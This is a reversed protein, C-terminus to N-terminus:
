KVYKKGDIIYVGKVAKSVRCGSLTYIGQKGQVPTQEVNKIANPNGNIEMVLGYEADPDATAAGWMVYGTNAYVDRTCDTNEEGEATVVTNDCFVVIGEDVWNYEFVGVFGNVTQPDAVINSADVTFSVETYEPTEGEAPAVYGEPEGVIFVVPKGAEISESEQENMALYNKDNKSFTGEVTYKVGDQPTIAVPYCMPYFKGEVIDKTFTPEYGDEVDGATEILWNSNSGFTNSEWSVFRQNWNQLHLCTREVGKLTRGHMLNTGGGLATVDFLTPTLSLTVNNNNVAQINIFLGTAKNQIAYASDAVAVFRFMALDDYEVNDVLWMAAGERVDGNATQDIGATIGQAEDASRYTGVTVYRGTGDGLDSGTAGSSNKGYKDYIEQMPFRFKYWKDTQVKNAADLFNKNAEVIKDVYGQLTAKDFQGKKSYETAEDIASSLATATSEDSWFGPDEGIALISAADKYTNLADRLPTPDVLANKFTEYAQQLAEYESVSIDADAINIARNLANQFDIAVQGMNEIQSTGVKNARYLQFGGMHWYGRDYCDQNPGRTGDNFFRLYQYSTTLVFADMWTEIVGSTWPDNLNSAILTWGTEGTNALASEDNSGYVSFLVPNDNSTGSARRQVWAQYAGPALPEPFSIDISHSHNPVSGGSWQSHWFTESNNDLLNETSGESSESCTSTFQSNETILGGGDIDPTYAASKDEAMALASQCLGKLEKYKLVLKDHNKYPEFAEILRQAEEDSVPELYWESTGKDSDYEEGYTFTPNWLCLGNDVGAGRSHGLQHLYNSTGRELSDPRIYVVVRDNERGAFDIAVKFPGDVSMKAPSNFDSFRMDTGANVMDVTSGEGQTLKWIFRCDDEKYTGWRGFGELTSYMAKVVPIKEMIEVQEENENLEYQGTGQNVYYHLNTYIRYYGNAPIKYLVETAMIKAYLADIEVTLAEVVDDSPREVVENIIDDAYKLKELFTPVIDAADYQGFDKGVNISDGYLYGDYKLLVNNLAIKVADSHSLGYLQFEACHWFKRYSAGSGTCNTANFRLYKVPDSVRFPDATTPTGKGAFPLAVTAIDTYTKGDNSGQVLMETPHDNDAVQRRTMAIVIDGTFEENLKVQLYHYQDQCKGHWDTHWFTSADGDIVYEINLGEAEDSANSSLQSADTIMPTGLEEVSQAQVTISGMMFLLMASLFLTINKRM